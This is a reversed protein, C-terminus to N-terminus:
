PTVLHTVDRASSSFLPSTPQRALTNESLFGSDQSALVRDLGNQRRHPVHM